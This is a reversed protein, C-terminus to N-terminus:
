YQMFLHNNMDHRLKRIEAQNKELEKYYDQQLKLNRQEMDRRISSVFYGALYISGINTAMCAFACLWVKSTMFNLNVIYRNHIRIFYEPFSKAAEDLKGYFEVTEEQMIIRIKRRESCFALTKALPIRILRAKQEVMFYHEESLAAEELAQEMVRAIKKKKYPKLIYHFAHVEYGQFVFDPYATVFIIVTKKGMKRLIQATKIGDLAKMEIDLFLIDLDQVKTGEVLEEGSMYELIQYEMGQLQLTQELIQRLARRMPQEDDCIGIIVM